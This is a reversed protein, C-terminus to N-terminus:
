SVWLAIQNVVGGGGGWAKAGRQSCKSHKTFESFLLTQITESGEAQHCPKVVMQCLVRYMVTPQSM